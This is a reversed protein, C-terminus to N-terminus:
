STACFRIAQLCFLSFFLLFFSDKKERKEWVEEEWWGKLLVFFLGEVGVKLEFVVCFSYDFVILFGTIGVNWASCLISSWCYFIVPLKREIRRDSVECGLFVGCFGCFLLSKMALTTGIVVFLLSFGLFLLFFFSFFPCLTIEVKEGNEPAIEFGVWSIWLRLWILPKPVGEADLNDM